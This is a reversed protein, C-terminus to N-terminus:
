NSASTRPHNVANSTMCVKTKPCAGHCAGQGCWRNCVHMVRVMANRARTAQMNGVSLTCLCGGSQQQTCAATATNKTRQMQGQPQKQKNVLVMTAIM